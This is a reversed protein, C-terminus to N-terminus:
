APDAIRSYLAFDVPVGAVTRWARRVGERQFGAKEAVRCSAANAVAANLEVRRVGLAAFAFDSLVRAATSAVGRGRAAGAVWYGIEANGSGRLRMEVSGALRGGVVVALRVGTGATADVHGGSIYEEADTTTYPDPLIELWRRIEADDVLGPLAAVDGRNWERLVVNEDGGGAGGRGDGAGPVAAASIGGAPIVIAPRVPAPHGPGGPSGDDLVLGMLVADWLAGSRRRYHRRRTGEIRFGYRAYLGIAPHNAPWAALSIKHADVSRAWDIVAELLARGIGGGRHAEVVFMGLDVIGGGVSAFAAGVVDGGAAALFLTAGDGAVARDFAPRRAERDLPAEAGMWRAEAAVAEFADMYADFDAAVAPRLSFSSLPFPVAAM